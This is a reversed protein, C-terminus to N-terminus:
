EVDVALFADSGDPGDGGTARLIFVHRGAALKEPVRFTFERRVSGGAPVPLEWSQDPVLGRGELTVRLTEKAPLPNEAALTCRLTEGPKAKQVLPEVHV